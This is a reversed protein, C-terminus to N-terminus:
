SIFYIRIISAEFITMLTCSEKQDVAGKFTKFRTAQPLTASTRMNNTGTDNSVILIYTLGWKIVYGYPFTTTLNQM